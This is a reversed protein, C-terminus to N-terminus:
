NVIILENILLDLKLDQELIKGKYRILVPVESLVDFEQQTLEEILCREYISELLGPGLQNHVEIACGVVDYALQIIYKQTIKM